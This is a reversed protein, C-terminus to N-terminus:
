GCKFRKLEDLDGVENEQYVVIEAYESKLNSHALDLAEKKSRTTDILEEHSNEYVGWVEYLEWNM